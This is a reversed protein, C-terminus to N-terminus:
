EPWKFFRDELEVNFKGGGQSIWDVKSRVITEDTGGPGIAITRTFRTEQGGGEYGYYGDSFNLPESVIDACTWTQSDYQIQYNDCGTPTNGSDIFNKVLEIGEAALYTGIYQDAVVRNLSFSKSIFTYVGLLGVTILTIAIIAEILVQGRVLRLDAGKACNEDNFNIKRTNM